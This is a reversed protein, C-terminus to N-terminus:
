ANIMSLNETETDKQIISPIRLEKANKSNFISCGRASMM